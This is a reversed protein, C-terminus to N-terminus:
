ASERDAHWPGDRNEGPRWALSPESDSVFSGTAFYAGHFDLSAWMPGGPTDFAPSAAAHSPIRRRRRSPDEIPGM